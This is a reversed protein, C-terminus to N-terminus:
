RPAAVLHIQSSQIEADREVLKLEYAIGNKVISQLHKAIADSLGDVKRLDKGWWESKQLVGDTLIKVAAASGDCQSWLESFTTLVALDDKIRYEKDDRHGILAGERIETGRYFAILAALSFTLHVPLSGHISVYKEFSPLV